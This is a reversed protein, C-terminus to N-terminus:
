PLGEGPRGFMWENLFCHGVFDNADVEARRVGDDRDHFAAVRDDDGVGFATPRGRGDDAERLVALSEDALDGLTLRDGVRLVGDERDLPEHAALHALHRVLDFRTGYLTTAPPLSTAM